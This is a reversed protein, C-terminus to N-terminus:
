FYKQNSWHTWGDSDIYQTKLMQRHPDFFRVGKVDDFEVNFSEGIAQVVEMSVLGAVEVLEQQEADLSPWSNDFIYESLEDEFLGSWKRNFNDRYDEGDQILVLNENEDLWDERLEEIISEISGHSEIADQCVNNTWESREIIMDKHM